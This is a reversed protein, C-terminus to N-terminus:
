SDDKEATADGCRLAESIQQATRLMHKILAQRESQARSRVMSIHVAAVADGKYDFVPAALGSVGEVNQGDSRAYGSARIQKLERRLQGGDTITAKTVEPLGVQAIVQDLLDPPGFALFLKGSATSHLYRPWGIRVDFGVSRTGAVKDVYVLHMGSRTGLYVDETSQAALEELYPRAIKVISQGGAIQHAIQVLAPGVAFKGDAAGVAAIGRDKLHQLLLFVTSKPVDLARHIESGTLGNPHTALLSIVDVVRGYGRGPYVKSPRASRQSASRSKEADLM